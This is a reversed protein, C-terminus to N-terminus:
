AMLQECNAERRSRIFAVSEHVPLAAARIVNLAYQAQMVETRDESMRGSTRGETFWVAPKDRYEIVSLPGDGGPHETSSFPIVQIGINPKTALAELHVLQGRMVDRGGYALHLVAESLIFWGAVVSCLVRQRALRITLEREIKDPPWGGARMNAATYEPIQLLGPVVRSEWVTMGLADREVDAVTASDQEGLELIKHLAAFTGPLGFADDCKGAFALTPPKTMNEVHAIYSADFGMRTALQAKSWKRQERHATVQGAFTALASNMVEPVPIM